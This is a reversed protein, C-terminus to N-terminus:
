YSLMHIILQRIVKTLYVDKFVYELMKKSRIRYEPQQYLTFEIRQFSYIYKLGLFNQRNSKKSEFLMESCHMEFDTSDRQIM